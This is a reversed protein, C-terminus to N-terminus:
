RLSALTWLGSRFASVLGCVFLCAAFLVGFLLAVFLASAIDGVDGSLGTSLFVAEVAQWAVSLVAFSVVIAGIFLLWGLTAVVLVRLPHRLIRNHARLGFAGALARRLAIASLAEVLAIAAVFVALPVTVDNFIRTYLSEASSPLVIEEYTSQGIAVALPVAAFLLGILAVTEIVFLRSTVTSRQSDALRGPARWAREAHGRTANVFRTYTALECRAVVYLVLLAVAFTLISALTTLAYFSPTLGTTGLNGGLLLRAEVATPLVVIPIALFIIGGRLAFGIVGLLLLHSHSRITATITSVDARWGSAVDTRLGPAVLIQSTGM